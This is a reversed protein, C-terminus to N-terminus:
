NMTIDLGFVHEDTAIAIDQEAIEANSQYHLTRAVLARFIHCARNGVHSGFLDLGMGARVPLGMRPDEFTSEAPLPARVAVLDPPKARFQPDEAPCGRRPRHTRLADLARRFDPPLPAEAEIWDGTRPHRFRLRHAYVGAPAVTGPLGQGSLGQGPMGSEPLDDFLGNLDARTKAGMARSVREDFEEQDLRGSSFHEALRDAVAQREADSVRMHQDSAPGGFMSQFDRAWPQNQWPQRQHQSAM